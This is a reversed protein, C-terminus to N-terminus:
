VEAATLVEVADCLLGLMVKVMPCSMSRDKEKGTPAVERDRKRLPPPLNLRIRREEVASMM